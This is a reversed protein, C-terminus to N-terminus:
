PVLKAMRVVDFFDAVNLPSPSEAKEKSLFRHTLVQPVASKPGRPQVM